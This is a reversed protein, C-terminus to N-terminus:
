NKVPRRQTDFGPQHVRHFRRMNKNHSIRKGKTPGYHEGSRTGAIEITNLEHSPVLPLDSMRPFRWDSEFNMIDLEEETIGKDTNQKGRISHRRGTRRGGVILAMRAM